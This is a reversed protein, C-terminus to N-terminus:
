IVLRAARGNKREANSYYSGAQTISAHLSQQMTELLPIGRDASETMFGSRLGHASFAAADLWAQRARAKLILNVSQPTLPRPVVNGWRDIKRFVAGGSVKGRELWDKLATVARGILVVSRGDDSNARKTRGLLITLCPLPPSNDNKPDTRIPAEDVLQEVRLEALESRRRGGAAFGVLLLARDRVDILRDSACTALLKQLVAATVAKKSKRQRLRGAARVALRLADRVVQTGFVGAHGRWRTLTSWNALRRKVSSPAHPGLVKLLQEARLVFAVTEPMGHEPNNAKEAPDWLHHAIFKLILLKPAPWPLPAGTALQCWREIYGLDSALARLTNDGTGTKALHRLTAVDDDALIDALRERRDAPLIGALADLQQGRPLPGQQPVPGDTM